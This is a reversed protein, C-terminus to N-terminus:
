MLRQRLLERLSRVSAKDKRLTISLSGEADELAEVISRLHKAVRSTLFDIDPRETKPNPMRIVIVSVGATVLAQQVAIAGGFDSKDHTLLAVAGEKQCVRPLEDDDLGEAIDPLPRFICGYQAGRANLSSALTPSSLDEDM